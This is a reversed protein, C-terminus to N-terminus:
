PFAARCTRRLLLETFLAEQRAFLRWEPRSKANTGRHILPVTIKTTTDGTM